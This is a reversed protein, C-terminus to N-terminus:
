IGAANLPLKLKLQSHGSYGHIILFMGFCTSFLFCFSSLPLFRFRALECRIRLVCNESEVIEIFKRCRRLTPKMKYASHHIEDTKEAFIYPKNFETPIKLIKWKDFKVCIRNSEAANLTYSAVRCYVYIKTVIAPFAALPLLPNTLTSFFSNRFFRM